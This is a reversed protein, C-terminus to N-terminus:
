SFVKLVTYKEIEKGGVIIFEGHQLWSHAKFRRYNGEDENEYYVGVYLVSHVGKRALLRKAALSAMLCTFRGGFAREVRAVYRSVAKCKSRDSVSGNAAKDGTKCHAVGLLRELKAHRNFRVDCYARLCELPGFIRLSSRM